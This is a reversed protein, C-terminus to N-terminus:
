NLPLVVKVEVKSDSAHFTFDTKGQYFEAMTILFISLADKHFGSGSQFELLMQFQDQILGSHFGIETDPLANRCAYQFLTMILLFMQREDMLLAVKKRGIKKNIKLSKGELCTRNFKEAEQFLPDMEFAKVDEKGNTGLRAMELTMDFFHNLRAMEEKAIKQCKKQTENLSGITEEGLLSIAEKVSTLPTRVDHSLAKLCEQKKQIIDM